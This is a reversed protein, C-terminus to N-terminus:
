LRLHGEEEEQKLCRSNVRLHGLGFYRLARQTLAGESIPASCRFYYFYM